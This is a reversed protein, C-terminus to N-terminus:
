HSRRKRAAVELQALCALTRTNGGVGGMEGKKREKKKLFDFPLMYKKLHVWTISSRVVLVGGIKKKKRFATLIYTCRVFM